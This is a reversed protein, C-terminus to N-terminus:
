LVPSCDHSFFFYDSEPFQHQAKGRFAILSKDLCFMKAGDIAASLGIDAYRQCVITEMGCKNGTEGRVFDSLRSDVGQASVSHIDGVNGPAAVPDANVIEFFAGGM